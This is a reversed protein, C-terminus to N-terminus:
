PNLIPVLPPRVQLLQDGSPLLSLDSNVIGTDTSRFEIQRIGKRPASISRIHIYPHVYETLFGAERLQRIIEATIEVSTPFADTQIILQVNNVQLYVAGGTPTGEIAKVRAVRDDTDLELRTTQIGPDNERLTLRELDGGDIPVIEIGFRPPDGDPEWILYVYFDERERPYPYCPEPDRNQDLVVPGMTKHNGRVPSSPCAPPPNAIDDTLCELLEYIGEGPGVSCTVTPNWDEETEAGDTPSPPDQTGEQGGLLIIGGLAPTAMIALLSVISVIKM